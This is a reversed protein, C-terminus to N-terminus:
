RSSFRPLYVVLPIARIVSTLTSLVSNSGLLGSVADDLEVGIGGTGLLSGLEEVLPSHLYLEANAVAYESTITGGEAEAMSSVAGLRLALEDAVGDTLVNVGLQDLLATLELSTEVNGSEQTDDVNIAGDETIAGAAAHARLASPASAYASLVGAGDTELNLLGNDTEDGVLPITVAGINLRIARLADIDLQSTQANEGDNEPWSQEASVATILSAFAEQDDPHVFGQLLSLDIALGEAQSLIVEQAAAEAVMSHSFLPNSPVPVFTSGVLATSTLAAIGLRLWKRRRILRESVSQSHSHM